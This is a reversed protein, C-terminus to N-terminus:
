FAITLFFYFLINFDKSFYNFALCFDTVIIKLKVRDTQSLGNYQTSLGALLHCEDCTLVLVTLPLPQHVLHSLECIVEKQRAKIVITERKSDPLSCSRLTMGRQERVDLYTLLLSTSSSAETDVAWGLLKREQDSADICTSPFLSLCDKEWSGGKHVRDYNSM